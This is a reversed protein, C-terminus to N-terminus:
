KNLVKINVDKFVTSAEEIFMEKENEDLREFIEENEENNETMQYITEQVVKPDPKQGSKKNIEKM